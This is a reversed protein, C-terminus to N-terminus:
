TYQEFSIKSQLTEEGNTSSQLSVYGLGSHHSDFSTAVKLGIFGNAPSETQDASIVQGTSTVVIIDEKKQQPKSSWPIKTM